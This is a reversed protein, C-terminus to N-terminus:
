AWRGLLAMVGCGLIMCSFAYLVKGNSAKLMSQNFLFEHAMLEVLGTWLLIGASISDLIGNAILAGNANSQYSYRAGLGIAMGIPTIFAYIIGGMIPVWNLREPLPLFALRSGLGLGEFMQHFIIVIFLITFQEDTALTLGIFISHFVVGFELIAIGMLQALVSGQREASEISDDDKHNKAKSIEKSRDLNSEVGHFTHAGAEGEAEEIDHGHHNYTHELGLAELKAMGIRFSFFELFFLAFISFMAIAAPWPYVTWAGTLCESSLADFAPTLLHIFATAIIVGSGAYKAFDFVSNPVRMAPIKRAVIPMLVGVMSTVLIIFIAGVRLGVKSNSWETPSCEDNVEPVESTDAM